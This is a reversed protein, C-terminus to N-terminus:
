KLEALFSGLVANFTKPDEVMPFRRSGQIWEQRFAPLHALMKPDDPSPDETGCIGLIPCKILHMQPILNPLSTYYEASKVYHGPHHSTFMRVVKARASAEKPFIPFMSEWSEETWEELAKRGKTKLIEEMKMRIDGMFVGKTKRRRELLPYGEIEYWSSLILARVRDPHHLAYTSVLPTSMAVAVFVAQKIELRDMLEALDVYNNWLSYGYPPLESKGHGRRYYTICRYERSFQAIPEEFMEIGHTEGHVFVVTPGSGQIEYYLECGNIKASPM